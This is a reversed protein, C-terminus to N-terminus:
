PCIGPSIANFFGSFLNCWQDTVEIVVLPILCFVILFGLAILMIIAWTPYRDIIKTDSKGAAGEDDLEPIEDPQRVANDPKISRDLKKKGVEEDSLDEDPLNEIVPSSVPAIQMEFVNNEGITILDGNRLRQPKKLNKGNLFTGNTSKLDEIFLDANKRYIKLHHRSIQIDDLVISNGSDRGFTIEENLIQFEKGAQLGARFIIKDDM